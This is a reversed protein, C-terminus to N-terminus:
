AIEKAENRDLVNKFVGLLVAKVEVIVIVWREIIIFNYFDFRGNQAQAVKGFFVVGGIPHEFDVVGPQNVGLQAIPRSLQILDFDGLLFKRLSYIKGGCSVNM